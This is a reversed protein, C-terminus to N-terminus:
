YISVTGNRIRNEPENYKPPLLIICNGTLILLLLCPLLFIRTNNNCNNFDRILMANLDYAMITVYVAFKVKVKGLLIFCVHM